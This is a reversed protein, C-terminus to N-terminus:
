GNANSHVPASCLAGLPVLNGGMLGARLPVWWGRGQSKSLSFAPPPPYLPFLPLFFFFFSGWFLGGSGSGPGQGGGSTSPAPCHLPLTLSSWSLWRANVEKGWRWPSANRAM